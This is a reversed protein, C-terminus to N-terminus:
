AFFKCKKFAGRSCQINGIGSIIIPFMRQIRIPYKYWHWQLVENGIQNFRDTLREGLECFLLIPSFSAIVLVSPVIFDELKTAM